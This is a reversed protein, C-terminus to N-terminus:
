GSRFYISVKANIWSSSFAAFFLINMEHRYEMSFDIIALVTMLLGRNM